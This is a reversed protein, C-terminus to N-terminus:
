FVVLLTSGVGGVLSGNTAGGVGGVLFANVNLVLV